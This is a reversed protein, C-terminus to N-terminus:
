GTRVNITYAFGFPDYINMSERWVLLFKLSGVINAFKGLSPASRNGKTFALHVARPSVKIVSKFLHFESDKHPNNHQRSARRARKLGNKKHLSFRFSTHNKRKCPRNEGFILLTSGGFHRKAIRDVFNVPVLRQQRSSSQDVIYLVDRFIITKMGAFLTLKMVWTFIVSM